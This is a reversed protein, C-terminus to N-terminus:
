RGEARTQKERRWIIGDVVYHHLNIAMATVLPISVLRGALVSDLRDGASYLAWFIPTSLALCGLLYLPARGAQSLWSLLRAEEHVGRSFRRHHHLWVFLLYQLNHWVNVVLWGASLDLVLYGLFFVAFHSTLYLTHPHLLARRRQWYFRAILFIAGAGALWVLLTPVRPLYLKMWFFKEPQQHCRALIGTLPLSWLTVEAFRDEPINGARRYRQAIGWSQRTTHFWQFLFYGTNLVGLGMQAVALVAAFALPPLGWILFRWRHRDSPLACLRTFTAVVHDFSFCWTEFTVLPLFLAPVLAVAGGFACGIVATGGILALDFRPDKLWGV